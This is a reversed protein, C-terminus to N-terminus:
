EPGVPEAWIFTTTASCYVGEWLWLINHLATGGTGGLGHRVGFVTGVTVPSNDWLSRAVPFVKGVQVSSSATSGFTLRASVQRQSVVISYM